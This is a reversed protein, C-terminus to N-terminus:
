AVPALLVGGALPQLGAFALVPMGARWRRSWFTDAAMCLTGVLAAAVGVAVPGGLWQALPCGPPRRVFSRAFVGISLAALVM